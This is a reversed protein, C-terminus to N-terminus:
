VYGYVGRVSVEGSSVYQMQGDTDVILYGEKTIGRAIGEYEGQPDLVKVSEGLNVLRNQYEERLFGLDKNQKYKEYYAIWYRGIAEKLIGVNPM